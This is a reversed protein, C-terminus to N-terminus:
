QQALPQTTKTPVTPTTTSSPTMPSTLTIRCTSPLLSTPSPPPSSQSYQHNNFSRHYRISCQIAPESPGFYDLNKLLSHTATKIATPIKDGWDTAFRSKTLVLHQRNCTTKKSLDLVRRLKAHCITPQFCGGKLYEHSRIRKGPFSLALWRHSMVLATGQPLTPIM